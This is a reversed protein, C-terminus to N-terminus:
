RIIKTAERWTSASGQIFRLNRWLALPMEALASLRTRSLCTAYISSFLLSPREQSLYLTLWSYYVDDSSSRFFESRNCTIAQLQGFPTCTSAQVCFEASETKLLDM